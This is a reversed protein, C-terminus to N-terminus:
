AVEKEFADTQFFLAQSIIAKVAEPDYPKAILYTPEPREGTLLLNPHATIFVVPPAYDQLIADVADAGSSGDALQVDALVLGPRERAIAEMAESYTRAVACVDHGLSNVIRTLDLSILQEDEIIMVRSALQEAIDAEAEALLADVTGTDIDLIASVQETDFGELQRLLFVVREEPILAALRQDANVISPSAPDQGRDGIETSRWLGCFTRFLAVDLDADASLSDPDNVITELTARVYADGSQQNGTLARAFRRLPPLRSIIKDAFTM